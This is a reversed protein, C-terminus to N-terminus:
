SQNELYLCLEEWRAIKKGLESELSRQELILEKSKEKDEYTTPDAMVERLGAQKKELKTIEAEVKEKEREWGRIKNNSPKQPTLTEPVELDTSRSESISERKFAESSEKIKRSLYDEYGGLLKTVLSGTPTPEIELVTDVLPSVFERDHSVLCLTGEYNQLAELLVGRSEVDLHNTPEDLILFNSPALLLKALAVRAKEGGSLVGCKKQVADGSFLFAGAIARVQAMPMDPAVMELEQLITKQPNLSESQMQAYYGTKVAHGPKVEGTTPEIAGSLVKLLTTKGAGNVGVIATRSGRSIVWDLNKFVPKDGYTVGANKMTVVERGSHPAPPFRFRIHSRDEPMEIREMKQLQKVRSQAQRAKSAKAGFRSVFEEIEAIKAQQSDYQSQMVALREQKQLVYADLNGRYVWLRQNEIEMVEHVMRNLFGTDHSILLMAGRFSQLFDELWLLSELDLHNTPEDLLLLDPDMLLIRSLAVRMLWGGSFESLDRDFDSTKFGMGHLISKARAELKYEDLHDLEEIIRGYRELEAETPDKKEFGAELEARTKKLGERRGDQRMVETFVTGGTYKPLDQPLYGIVLNQARSVSGADPSELGLIIKTLTSKGAGNPGMLAVRSRYGLHAEAENFLIKGAFRKDLGHIHLM